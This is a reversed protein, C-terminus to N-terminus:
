KRKKTIKKTQKAQAPQSPKLKKTILQQVLNLLNMVTWYLVLGSAVNYFIFFFVAPMAWMMMQTQKNSQVNPMFLSSLISVGLMLIPMINLTNIGILPLPNQAFQWVVDPAALDTIWLFGAGKLSVMQDLLRYMAILIPMQLLLPLCGGFPNIGEKKYLEMTKKNLMQPDDKYKAQMDKIKPQLASMREQSAMGKYTLPFTILKILLTLLIIAVGYNRVVGYIATLVSGVINGLGFVIKPSIASIKSHSLTFGDRKLNDYEELFNKIKPGIYVYFTSSIHSKNTV